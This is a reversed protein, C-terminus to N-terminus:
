LSSDSIIGINVQEIKNMSTIARLNFAFNYCFRETGANGKIFKGYQFM